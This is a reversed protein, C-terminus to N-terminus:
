FARQAITTAGELKESGKEIKFTLRISKAMKTFTLKTVNIDNDGFANKDITKIDSPLTIDLKQLGSPETTIQFSEGQKIWYGATNLFFIANSNLAEGDKIGRIHKLGTTFVTMVMAATILGLGLAVITEILTFGSNKKINIFM